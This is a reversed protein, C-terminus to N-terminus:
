RFLVRKVVIQNVALYELVYGRRLVLGYQIVSGANQHHHDRSTSVNQQLPKIFLLQKKVTM